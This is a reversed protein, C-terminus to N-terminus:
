GARLVATLRTARLPGRPRGLLSGAAGADRLQDMFLSCFASRKSRSLIFGEFAVFLTSM